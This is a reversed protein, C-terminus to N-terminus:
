IEDFPNDFKSNGCTSSSGFNFGGSLPEKKAPEAPKNTMSFNNYNGFDM